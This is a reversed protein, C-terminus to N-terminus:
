VENLKYSWLNFDESRDQPPPRFGKEDATALGKIADTPWVKRRRRLLFIVTTVWM